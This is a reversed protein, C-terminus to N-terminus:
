PSKQNVVRWFNRTTIGRVPLVSVADSITGVCANVTANAMLQDISMSPFYNLAGASWETTLQGIPVSESAKRIELGFIRM